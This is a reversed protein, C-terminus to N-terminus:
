HQPPVDVRPILPRRRNFSPEGFRCAFGARCKEQVGRVGAPPRRAAEEFLREIREEREVRRNM